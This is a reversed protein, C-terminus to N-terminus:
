RKNNKSLINSIFLSFSLKRPLQSVHQNQILHDMQPEHPVSFVVRIRGDKLVDQSDQVQQAFKLCSVKFSFSFILVLILVLTPSLTFYFGKSM